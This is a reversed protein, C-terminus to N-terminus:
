VRASVLQSKVSDIKEHVDLLISHLLTESLSLKEFTEPLVDLAWSDRGPNHGIGAAIWNALHMMWAFKSYKPSIGRPDYQFGVAESIVQPFKWKELLAQSLQAHNFGLVEQEAQNLPIMKEDILAFVNDYEKDVCQNIVTKGIAHLLGITYCESPNEGLKTALIEMCFACAISNEWLQGEDLVYCAVKSGVLRKSIIMGVLKYLERLGIRSIATELDDCPESFGYFASNSWALVQATLAQDVRALEVIEWSTGEGGQLITLLKPLIQPSPPLQKDDALIEQITIM